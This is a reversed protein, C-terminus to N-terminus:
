LGITMIKLIRHDNDKSTQVVNARAKGGKTTIKSKSSKLLKGFRSCLLRHEQDIYEIFLEFPVVDMDFGHDFALKAFGKQLNHPLRMFTQKATSAANLVIASKCCM